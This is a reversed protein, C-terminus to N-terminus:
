KIQILARYHIYSRSERLYRKRDSLSIGETWLPIEDSEPHSACADYFWLSGKKLPERDFPLKWGFAKRGWCVAKM